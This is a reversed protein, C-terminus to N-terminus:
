FTFRASLLLQHTEVTKVKVYDRSSWPDDVKTRAKGLNAYRYGLDLAITDSLRLAAGLGINWAANITTKKGYTYTDTDSYTPSPNGSSYGTETATDKVKADLFSTGLGVSVYPTFASTNHWDFYANVFLTRVGLIAKVKTDYETRGGSLEEEVNHFSKDQKTDSQVGYELEVRLPFRLSPYFDYGAALAGGYAWKEQSGLGSGSGGDAHKFHFRVQGATLRPAVYIGLPEAEAPPAPLLAAALLLSLSLSNKM